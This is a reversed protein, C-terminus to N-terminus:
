RLQESAELMLALALNRANHFKEWDRENRFEILKRISNNYANM